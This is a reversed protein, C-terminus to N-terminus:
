AETAHLKRYQAVTLGAREAASKLEAANYRKFAAHRKAETEATMWAEYLDHHEEHQILSQLKGLATTNRRRAGRSEDGHTDLITHYHEAYRALSLLPGLVAGKAGYSANESVPQYTRMVRLARETLMKMHEEFGGVYTVAKLKPAKTTKTTKSAKAPKTVKKAAAPM